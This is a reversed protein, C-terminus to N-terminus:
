FYVIKGENTSEAKAVVEPPLRKELEQGFGSEYDANEVLAKTLSNGMLLNFAKRVIKARKLYSEKDLRYTNYVTDETSDTESKQQVFGMLKNYRIANKNDKRIKAYAVLDFVLLGLEAFILSCLVPTQSNISPKDWFFVGAEMTRKEWDINKGNMLGIKKGDVEIIFYFNYINNISQFWKEQMERTIHDTTVMTKSIEPTNRSKRVLEIDDHTLRRFIINGRSVIM